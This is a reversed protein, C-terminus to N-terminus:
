RILSLTLLLQAFHYTVMVGTRLLAGVHDAVFQRWGLLSDSIVFLAAGAVLMAGGAGCACAFMALIAVLYVRVGVRMPVARARTAALVPRGVIAATAAIPIVSAAVNRWHWSDILLFGVIYAVHAALFAALGAIFMSDDLLLVDGVLSAVLAIVFAARVDGAAPDLTGAIGILLATAAPKTIIEAWRLQYWRSLWNLPAVVVFCALLTWAPATM